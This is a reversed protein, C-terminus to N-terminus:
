EKRREVELGAVYQLKGAIIMSQVIGRIQSPHVKSQLSSQVATIIANMRMPPGGEPLLQLVAAVIPANQCAVCEHSGHHSHLECNFKAM